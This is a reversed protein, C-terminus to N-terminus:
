KVPVGWARVLMTPIARRKGDREIVTFTDRDDELEDLALDLMM